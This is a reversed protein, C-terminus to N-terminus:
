WQLSLPFFPSAPSVILGTLFEIKNLRGVGSEISCFQIECRGWDLGKDVIPDSLRVLFLM